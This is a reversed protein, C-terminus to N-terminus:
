TNRKAGFAVALADLVMRRRLEALFPGYQEIWAESRVVDDGQDGSDYFCLRTNYPIYSFTIMLRRRVRKITLKYDGIEFSIIAPSNRAKFLRSGDREVLEIALRVMEDLRPDLLPDSM